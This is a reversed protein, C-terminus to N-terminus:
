MVEILVGSGVIGFWFRLFMWSKKAAASEFRYVGTWMWVFIM